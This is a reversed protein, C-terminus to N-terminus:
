IFGLNPIFAKCLRCSCEISRLDKIKTKFASLTEANQINTPLTEWIKPGRFRITETGFAVTRVKPIDWLRRNRLDHPDNNEIFLERMPLPAINNKVKYMEIALRQLNKQHVTKSNDLELLEEFSLESNKYVLKLAREHLKNIRNNMTRSHFMWVLPCYNFQSEIFTKM